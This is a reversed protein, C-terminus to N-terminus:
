KKRAAEDKRKQEEWGKHAERSAEELKKGAKKAAEKTEQAVQYATRGAKRASSDTEQRTCAAAGLLLFTILGAAWIRM